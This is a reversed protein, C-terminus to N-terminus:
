RGRCASAYLDPGPSDAYGDIKNLSIKEDLDELNPPRILVTFQFFLIILVPHPLL